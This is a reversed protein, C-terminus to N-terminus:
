FIIIFIYIVKKLMNGSIEFIVVIGLLLVNWSFLM